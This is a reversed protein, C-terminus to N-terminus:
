ASKIEFTLSHDLKLAFDMLTDVTMNHIKGTMVNSVRSQPVDLIKSVEHQTLGRDKINKVIIAWLSSKFRLRASEEPSFGLDEFVNGSSKTFELKEENAIKRKM